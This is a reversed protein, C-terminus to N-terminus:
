YQSDASVLGSSWSIIQHMETMRKQLFNVSIVWRFKGFPKWNIHYISVTLQAKFFYKRIYLSMTNENVKWFLTKMSKYRHLSFPNHGWLPSHLISAPILPEKNSCTLFCMNQGKLQLVSHRHKFSSGPTLCGPWLHDFTFVHMKAEPASVSPGRHLM